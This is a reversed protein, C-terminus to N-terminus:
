YDTIKISNVNGKNDYDMSVEYKKDESIQKKLKTIEDPDNTKTQNYQVTITHDKDKKLSLAVKDILEIVDDGDKTGFYEELEKNFLTKDFKEEFDDDMSEKEKEVIKSWTDIAQDVKNDFSNDTAKDIATNFIKPIFNFSSFVRAVIITSLLSFGLVCGVVILIIILKSNNNNNNNTGKFPEENLKEEIKEKDKM